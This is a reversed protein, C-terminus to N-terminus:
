IVSFAERLRLRAGKTSYLVFHDARVKVKSASFSCEWSLHLVLDWHMVSNKIPSDTNLFIKGLGM